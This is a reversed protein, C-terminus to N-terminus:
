TIHLELDDSSTVNDVVKVNLDRFSVQRKRDDDEEEEGKPHQSFQSRVKAGHKKHLDESEGTGEQYKSLDIDEITKNRLDKPRSDTM